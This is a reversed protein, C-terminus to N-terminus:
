YISQSGCSFPFLTGQYIYILSQMWQSPCSCGSAGKNARARLMQATAISNTGLAIVEIKVYFQENLRKIIISGIGGGQGDIICIRKM